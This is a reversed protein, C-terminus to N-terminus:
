TRSGILASGYSSLLDALAEKDLSVSIEGSNVPALDGPSFRFSLTERTMYWSSELLDAILESQGDYLGDTATEGVAEVLKATLKEQAGESLLASLLIESGVRLDVNCFRTYSITRGESTTENYFYTLSAAESTFYNLEFRVRVSPTTLAGKGASADAKYKSGLLDIYDRIEREIADLREALTAQLTENGTISAVPLSLSVSLLTTNKNTVDYQENKEGIGGVIPTTPQYEVVTTSVTTVAPEASTLETTGVTTQSPERGPACATLLMVTTLGVGVIQYIKM